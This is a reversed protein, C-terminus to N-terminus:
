ILRPLFSGRRRERRYYQLPNNVNSNSALAKAIEDFTKNKTEPMVVFFFLWCVAVVGFFPLYVYGKMTKNLIPFSILVLFNCLWQVGQSLSYAATRPGQRFLESVIMAPIPGLGVAFCALYLFLLVICGVAYPGKKDDPKSEMLQMMVTLLLLTIGLVFTPWLLLTRRGARELLPLAIITCVVNLVGLGIVFYERQDDKVSAGQLMLNSNAVVANIGSLQQLVQILVAIIVPLRLDPQKFLQMFKFEPANKAAAAEERMEALFMDVGDPNLRACAQKAAEEKNKILHLYRPSEPCLPLLFCCIAPPIAGVGIALPWLKPTQFTAKTTTGYSLLIGMTVALQHCAGIFGRLNLPAIETLYLSAVGITIGSNIGSVFRGAFLLYPQNMKVCPASIIAGAIAILHNLMLSNRRGLCDALTGCSFAGMAAAIVFVGSVAGYYIEKKNDDLNWVEQMFAKIM